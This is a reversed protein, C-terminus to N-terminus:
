AAGPVLNATTFPERRARMDAYTTVALPILFVGALLTYGGQLIANIVTATTNPASLGGGITVSVLTTLLNLVVSSAFSLGFLTAIRSVSVGLDAHFLQFCRGIGAGRELLVVLPLVALAAAVYIVPFFCLVTAVIVVPVALLYWGLMAPLRKLGALLAPGIPNGRRGTATFVVIQANALHGVVYFLGAAAAAPMLTTFGAFILSFDPPGGAEISNQLSDQATRQEKQFAVLAPVLLALTPVAILLQVLAIPRWTAKILAISRRWWGNYDGSVLPDAPDFGVPQPYPYPQPQPQPTATWDQWAGQQPDQSM